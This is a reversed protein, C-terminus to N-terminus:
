SGKRHEECIEETERGIKFKFKGSFLSTKELFERLIGRERSEQVNLKQEWWNKSRDTHCLCEIHMHVNIKGLM